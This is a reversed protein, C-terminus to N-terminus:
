AVDITEPSITQPELGPVVIILQRADVLPRSSERRKLQKDVPTNRVINLPVLQKWLADVPLTAGYDLAAHLLVDAKLITERENQEIIANEEETIEAFSSRWYRLTAEDPIRETPLLERLKATANGSSLRDIVMLRRALDRVQQSFQEGPHRSPLNSM